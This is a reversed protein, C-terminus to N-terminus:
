TTPLIFEAQTEEEAHAYISREMADTKTLPWALLIWGMHYPRSEYDVQKPRFIKDLGPMRWSAHFRSVAAQLGRSLRNPEHRAIKRWILDAQADILSVGTEPPNILWTIGRDIWRSYDMGSANQMALLAMPAMADQHVAYVPYGELVNGTRYDYHWWWQGASGQLTCIREACISATDLAYSNGTLLYYHSMAQIPYVLDAFCTVHSRFQRADRWSPRHPFMGTKENFSRLLKDAILRLSEEDTKADCRVSMATLLWALEVTSYDGTAPSM